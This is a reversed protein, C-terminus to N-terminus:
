DQNLKYGVGWVTTIISPRTPDDEIKARLRNIHSNVTHEYGEHVHGWIRSLLHARSFVSDPNQVFYCLLDFEKPTLDLVRDNRSATHMRTNIHIGHQTSSFETNDEPKKTASENVRRLIAKVRAVLEIVSFPKTLYDDAGLELGLVRDLESSKSTLMLIPLTNGSQRMERCVSLGDKRPLRLDLIMLCWRESQALRLGEVGDKAIVVADYHDQLHLSILHAIDPDDEVILIRSLEVNPIPGAQINM